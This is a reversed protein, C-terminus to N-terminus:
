KVDAPPLNDQNKNGFDSLPNMKPMNLAKEEVAAKVMEEASKEDVNYLSMVADKKSKLGADVLKIEDDIQEHDDIPLGDSWEIEPVVPDKKLKLGDVELGHTKAMLQGVYLVEKLAVDYYLKKRAVKAITRMLKFKLARGSDSVGEGLGLVDPSVEGVMYMFEVLKEVQKFANELSADWVVYEPKGDEGEGLEVVGLAKKKVKGEKDLIGPPVTLIPDSHKDLINDTKTMRNNIAYFITELDYYDSIGFHRNGTKWNPVHTILHRDIGTPVEPELGPIQLISLDQESEIKDGKMKFVKNEILGPTHIEKRLYLADGIKFTWALTKVNPEARVNFGDVEPFYILPTNSEIIVTTKGDNMRREGTRVKFLDDGMYSNSLASEYVQVDMSNEGWLAEVFEQDGDPAKIAVPESFLMDAVIKSILGAFNVTTYRLRQYAKTYAPDDIKINFADFHEGLFLREFHSYRQVRKEDEDTPPFRQSPDVGAINIKKKLDDAPNEITPTTESYPSVAM